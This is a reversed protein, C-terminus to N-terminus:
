NTILYELKKLTEDRVKNKFKICNGEHSGTALRGCICMMTQNDSMENEIQRRTKLWESFHHDQIYNLKQKKNM